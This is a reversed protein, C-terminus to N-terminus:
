PFPPICCSYRRNKELACLCVGEGGRERGEEKDSVLCTRWGAAGTEGDPALLPPSRLRPSRLSWRVRTFCCVCVRKADEVGPRGHVNRRHQFGLPRCPPACPTGARVPPSRSAKMRPSRWELRARSRSPSDAPPPILWPVAGSTARAQERHALPGKELKLTVGTGCSWPEVVLVPKQYMYAPELLRKSHRQGSKM